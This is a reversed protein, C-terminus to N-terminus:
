ESRHLIAPPSQAALCARDTLPGGCHLDPWGQSGTGEIGVIMCVETLHQRACRRSHVDGCCSTPPSLVGVSFFERNHRISHRPGNGRRTMAPPHAGTSASRGESDVVTVRPVGPGNPRWAQDKAFKDVPLPKGDILWRLQGAGGDAQLPVIADDAGLDIVASAPPYLIRPPKSTPAAIAGAVARPPPASAAALRAAHGRFRRLAPPLDANRAVLLTDVPPKPRKALEGPLRDFM